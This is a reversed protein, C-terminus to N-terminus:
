NIRQTIFLSALILIWIENRRAEFVRVRTRAYKFNKDAKGARESSSRRGFLSAVEFGFAKGIRSASYFPACSTCSPNPTSNRNSKLEGRERHRRRDSIISGGNITQADYSLQNASSPSLRCSCEDLGTADLITEQKPMTDIIANSPIKM